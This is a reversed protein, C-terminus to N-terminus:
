MIEKVYSVFQKKVMVMVGGSRRGQHSLKLAPAIYVKFNPFVYSIDLGKDTYTETLSVVDFENVYDIWDGDKLINVLGAINCLM